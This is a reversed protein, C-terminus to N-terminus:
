LQGCLITNEDIQLLRFIHKKLKIQMTTFYNVPDLRLLHGNTCGVFIHKEFGDSEKDGVSIACRIQENQLPQISSQKKLSYLDLVDVQSDPGDVFLLQQKGNQVNLKAIVLSIHQPMQYVFKM